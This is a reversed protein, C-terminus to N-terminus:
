DACGSRLLDPDTIEARHAEFWTRCDIRVLRERAEDYRWFRTPQSLLQKLFVANSLATM